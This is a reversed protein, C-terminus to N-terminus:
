AKGVTTSPVISSHALSNRGEKGLNIKNFSKKYCCYVIRGKGRTIGFVVKLLNGTERSSKNNAGEDKYGDEKQLCKLRENEKLPHYELPFDPRPRIEQLRHHLALM